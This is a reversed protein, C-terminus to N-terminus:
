GAGHDSVFCDLLSSHGFQDCWCYCPLQALVTPITDAIRYAQAANPDPFGPPLTQPLRAAAETSSRFPPIRAKVNGGPAQSMQVETQPSPNSTRSAWYFVALVVIGAVALARM